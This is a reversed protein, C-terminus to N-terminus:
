FWVHWPVSYLLVGYAIAYYLLIRNYKGVASLSGNGCHRYGITVFIVALLMGAPHELIYFRFTGSGMLEESFNSFGLPSVFYLLSGILIQTYVTILAVLAPIRGGEKFDRRKLFSAFIYIFCILFVFLLALGLDHHTNKLTKYM